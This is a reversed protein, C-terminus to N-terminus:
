SGAGSGGEYEEVTPELGETPDPNPRGRAERASIATEAAADTVPGRLRPWDVPVPPSPPDWPDGRRGLGVFLTAM